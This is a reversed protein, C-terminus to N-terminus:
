PGPRCPRDFVSHFVRLGRSFKLGYPPFPTRFSDRSGTLPYTPPPHFSFFLGPGPGCFPGVKDVTVLNGSFTPRPVKGKSKCGARATLASMLPLYPFRFFFSAFFVVPLRGFSLRRSSNAEKLPCRSRAPQSLRDLTSPSCPPQTYFIYFPLALEIPMAYPLVQRRTRPEGQSRFIPNVKMTPCCIVM